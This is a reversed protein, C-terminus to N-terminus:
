FPPSMWKENHTKRISFRDINFIVPPCFISDTPQAPVPLAQFEALTVRCIDQLGKTENYRASLEATYRARSRAESMVQKMTEIRKQLDLLETELSQVYQELMTLEEKKSHFITCKGQLGKNQCLDLTAVTTDFEEHMKLTSEALLILHQHIDQNSHINLEKRPLPYEVKCGVSEFSCEMIQLPCEAIHERLNHREIKGYECKNPCDIPCFVCEHLHAQGEKLKGSWM